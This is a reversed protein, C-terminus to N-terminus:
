EVLYNHLHDLEELQRKLGHNNICFETKQYNILMKTVALKMINYVYDIYLAHYSAQHNGKKIDNLMQYLHKTLRLLRELGQIDEGFVASSGDASNGKKPDSRQRTRPSPLTGESLNSNNLSMKATGHQLSAKYADFACAELDKSLKYIGGKPLNGCLAPDYFKHLLTELELIMESAEKERWYYDAIEIFDSSYIESHKVQLNRQRRLNYCLM